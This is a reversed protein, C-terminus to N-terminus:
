QFRTNVTEVFQDNGVSGNSDSVTAGAGGVVGVFNFGATPAAFSVESPIVSQVVPDPIGSHFIRMPKPESFPEDTEGEVAKISATAAATAAMELLPPSIDFHSPRISYVTQGLENVTETITEDITEPKPIGESAGIPHPSLLVGTASTAIVAKKRAKAKPKAAFAEDGAPLAVCVALFAISAIGRVLM